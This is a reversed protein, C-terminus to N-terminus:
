KKNKNRKKTRKNRRKKNKGSIINLDINEKSDEFISKSKIKKIKKTKKNLNSRSKSITKIPKSMSKISTVDEIKILNKLYNLVKEKEEDDSLGEFVGDVTKGILLVNESPALMIKGKIDLKISSIKSLSRPGGGLSSSNSSVSSEADSAYDEQIMSLASASSSASELKDKAEKIIPDDIDCKKANKLLEKLEKRGEITSVRRLSKKIQSKIIKETFEDCKRKAPLNALITKIRSRIEQNSIEDIDKFVQDRQNQKLKFVLTKLANDRTAIKNLDDLVKQLRSQERIYKYPLAMIDLNENINIAMSTAMSTAENIISIDLRDKLPKFIEDLSDKVLTNMQEYRNDMVKRTREMNNFNKDLKSDLEEDKELKGSYLSFIQSSSVLYKTIPDMESAQNNCNGHTLGFNNALGGKDKTEDNVPNYCCLMRHASIIHDCQAGHSYSKGCYFCYKNGKDDFPVRRGRRKVEDCMSNTSMVFIVDKTISPYLNREEKQFYLNLKKDKEDRMGSMKDISSVLNKLNDFLISSDMIKNYKQKFIDGDRLLIYIIDLLNTILVYFTNSTLDIKTKSFKSYISCSNYVNGLDAEYKFKEKFIEKYTKVIVDRLLSDLFFEYEKEKPDSCPKKNKKGHEDEESGEDSSSDEGLKQKKSTKSKYKKELKSCYKELLKRLEIKLPQIVGKLTSEEIKRDSYKVLSVVQEKFKVYESDKELVEKNMYFDPSKPSSSSSSPSSTRARKGTGRNKKKHKITKM